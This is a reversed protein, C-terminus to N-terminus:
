VASELPAGLRSTGASASSAALYFAWAFASSGFLIFGCFLWPHKIGRRRGDIISWVPFILLSMITYDQSASSAAPNDYGLAIFEAGAAPVGSSTTCEARRRTSRRRVPQQLLLGLVISAIGVVYYFIELKSVQPGSSFRAFIAPNTRVIVALTAFGLVLHIILSVMLLCDRVVSGLKTLISMVKHPVKEGHDPGGLRRATLAGALRQPLRRDHPEEGLADLVRRGLLDRGVGPYRQPGEVAVERGLVIQEEGVVGAQLPEPRRQRRPSGVLRDDLRHVRRDHRTRIVIPGDRLGGRKAGLFEFGVPDHPVHALDLGVEGLRDFCCRASSSGGSGPVSSRMCMVTVARHMAAATKPAISTQISPWSRESGSSDRSVRSASSM